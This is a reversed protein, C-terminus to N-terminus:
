KGDPSHTAEAAETSIWILNLGFPLRAPSKAGPDRLLGAKTEQDLVDRLM